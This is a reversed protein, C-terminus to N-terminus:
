PPSRVQKILKMCGDFDTNISLVQLWPGLDRLQQRDSSEDHAVRLRGRSDVAHMWGGTTGACAVDVLAAWSDAAAHVHWLSYCLTLTLNPMPNPNPDPNLTISLALVMAGNAIPQNLQAM